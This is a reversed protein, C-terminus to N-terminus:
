RHRPAPRRPPQPLLGPQGPRAARATPKQPRHPVPCLAALTTIVALTVTARTTTYSHTIFFAESVLAGIALSLTVTLVGAELRDMTRGHRTLAANGLRVLAAGPCTLMFAFAILVRLPSGGPLATAALAIWGSAALALRLPTM